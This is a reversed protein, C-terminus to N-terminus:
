KTYSDRIKVVKKSKGQNSMMSSTGDKLNRTLKRKNLVYGNSEPVNSPFNRMASVNQVANKVREMREGENVGPRYSSTSEVAHIYNLDSLVFKYDIKGIIEDSYASDRRVEPHFNRDDLLGRNGKNMKKLRPIVEGPKYSKTDRGKAIPPLTVRQNLDSFFAAKAAVSDDELVPGRDINKTVESCMMSCKKHGLQLALEAASVGNKNKGGDKVCKLKYLRCIYRVFSCNGTQVAYFLISNGKADTIKIDISAQTNTLMNMIQKHGKLSAWHLANRGMKDRHGVKAGHKLLLKVMKRAVEQDDFKCAEILPTTGSETTNVTLVEGNSVLDKVDKVHGQKVAHMLAMALDLEFVCFAEDRQLLSKYWVSVDGATQSRALQQYM